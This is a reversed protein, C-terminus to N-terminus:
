TESISAVVMPSVMVWSIGLASGVGVIVELGDGVGVGVFFSGGVSGLRGLSFPRIILLIPTLPARFSPSSQCFIRRLPRQRTGFKAVGRESSLLGIM